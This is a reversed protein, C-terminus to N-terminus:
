GAPGGARDSDAEPGGSTRALLVPLAAQWYRELVRSAEWAAGRQRSLVQVGVTITVVTAVIDDVAAGPALSGDRRADALLRRLLAALRRRLVPVGGEARECSVQFGARVVVDRSLLGALERTTRVLAMLATGDGAPRAAALEDLARAAENELESALAEKDAFHFYVAGTSLGAEASVKALTAAKLGHRDVVHAAARVIAARSRIARQQRAV